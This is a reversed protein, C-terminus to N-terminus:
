MKAKEGLTPGEAVWNRVEITMECQKTNKLIKEKGWETVSLLSLYQKIGELIIQIKM